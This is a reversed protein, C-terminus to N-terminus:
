CVCIRNVFVRISFVDVLVCVCVGNLAAIFDPDILEQFVGSFGPVKMIDAINVTDMSSAGGVAGEEALLAVYAPNELRATLDAPPFQVQAGAELNSARIVVESVVPPVLTGAAALGGSTSPDDLM